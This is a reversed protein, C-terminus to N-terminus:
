IYMNYNTDTKTKRQKLYRDFGNSIDDITLIGKKDPRKGFIRDSHEHKCHIVLTELDGAYHPFSEHNTKFFQILEKSNEIDKSLKWNIDNIMKIFIQKMDNPTYKDITYKFSFRRKLGPNSSFFSKELNEAYGAIICVFKKRNESLNQNLTDLCEKSFTDDNGLSYAEDIFLVGGEAEDIVNQTKIATHGVYKGVLDSRKVLKISDSEIIDLACYIEALIKGIETKGVGPPGEIVTHMMTGNEEFGQMYYKVTELIQKKIKKLGVMKNLKELPERLKLMKKIDVSYVKGGYEYMKYKENNTKLNITEESDNLNDQDDTSSDFYDSNNSDCSNSLDDSNNQDNCMPILFKDLKHDINITFNKPFTNDITKFKKTLDNLENIDNRINNDFEIDNIFTIFNEISNIDYDIEYFSDDTIEMMKGNSKINKSDSNKEIATKISNLMLKIFDEGNINEKGNLPIIMIDAKNGSSISSKNKDKELNIIELNKKTNSTKYNSDSFSENVSEHVSDDVSDDVSEEPNHDYQNHVNNIFVDIDKQIYEIDERIHVIDNFLYKNDSLLDELNSDMNKLKNEIHYIKRDLDDIMKMTKDNNYNIDQNLKEINENINDLKQRVIYIINDIKKELTNLKDSDM